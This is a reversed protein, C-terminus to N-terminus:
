VNNASHSPVTRKSWSPRRILITGTTADALQAERNNDAPDCHYRFCFFSSVPNGHLKGIACTTEGDYVQSPWPSPETKEKLDGQVRCDITRFSM